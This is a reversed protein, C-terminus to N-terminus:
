PMVLTTAESIGGSASSGGTVKMMAEFETNQTYGAIIENLTIRGSKDGDLEGCLRLLRDSMQQFEKAKHRAKSEDGMQRAEASNDVIVAKAARLNKGGHSQQM